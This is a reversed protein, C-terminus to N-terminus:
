VRCTRASQRGRTADSCSIATASCLQERVSWRCCHHEYQSHQARAQLQAGRQAPGSLDFGDCLTRQIDPVRTLGPHAAECWIVPSAFVVHASRQVQVMRIATRRHTTNCKVRSEPGCVGGVHMEVPM